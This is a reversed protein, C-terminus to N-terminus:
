TSIYSWAIIDCQRLKYYIKFDQLIFGEYKIKFIPKAIRQGKTELYIKYDIHWNECKFCFRSPNHNSHILDKYGNPSFKQGFWITERDM